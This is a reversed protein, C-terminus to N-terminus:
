TTSYKAHIQFNIITNAVDIRKLDVSGNVFWECIQFGVVVVAMLFDFQEIKFVVDM